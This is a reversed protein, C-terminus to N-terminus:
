KKEISNMWAYRWPRIAILMGFGESNKEDPAHLHFESRIELLFKDLKGRIRTLTEPTLNGIMFRVFEEPKKFASQLFDTKTQEFLLRGMAGEKKFRRMGKATMRIVNKSHLEILKLRDLQLLLKQLETESIKYNKLIRKYDLGEEILMQLHFLRPNQSFAKEQEDTYIVDKQALDFQALSIIESFDTQTAVCIQEIKKLTLTKSNLLRKISSESMDLLLALEKYTIGKRKLNLKIAELLLELQGM